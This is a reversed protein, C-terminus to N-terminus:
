WLSSRWIIQIWCKRYSLWSKQHCHLRHIKWLTHTSNSQKLTVTLWFLHSFLIFLYLIYCGQLFYLLNATNYDHNDIFCDVM